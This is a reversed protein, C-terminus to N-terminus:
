TNKPPFFGDWPGAKAKSNKNITKKPSSEGAAATVVRIIAKLAFVEIPRTRVPERCTPCTYHPSPPLLNALMAAVQPHAAAHPNQALNQFLLQLHPINRAQNVNYHPNANMFQALTTGFWDQLCSLCFIHGCDPLSCSSSTSLVFPAPFPISKLFVAYSYPEWMRSTCIECDM